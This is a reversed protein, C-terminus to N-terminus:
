KQYIYIIAILKRVDIQLAHETKWANFKSITSEDKMWGQIETETYNFIDSIEHYLERNM